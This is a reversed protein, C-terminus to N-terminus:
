PDVGHFVSRHCSSFIAFVWDVLFVLTICELLFECVLWVLSVLLRQTHNDLLFSTLIVSRPRYKNLDSKSGYKFIPSVKAM